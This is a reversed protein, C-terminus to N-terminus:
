TSRIPATGPWSVKISLASFEFPKRKYVMVFCYVSVTNETAIIVIYTIRIFNDQWVIRHILFHTTLGWKIYYSMLDTYFRLRLYTCKWWLLYDSTNM